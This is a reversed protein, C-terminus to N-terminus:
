EAVLKYSTGEIEVSDGALLKRAMQSNIPNKSRPGREPQEIKIGLEPKGADALIKNLSELAEHYKRTNVYGQVHELNILRRVHFFDNFGMDATLKDLNERNRDAEPLTDMLITKIDKIRKKTETSPETELKVVKPEKAKKEPKTDTATTM